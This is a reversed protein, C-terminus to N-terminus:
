REQGNYRTRKKDEFEVEFVLRENWSKKRYARRSPPNQLRVQMMVWGVFVFVVFLEYM